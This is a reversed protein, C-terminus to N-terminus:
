KREINEESFDAPNTIVPIFGASLLLKPTKILRNNICVATFIEDTHCDYLCESQRFSSVVGIWEKANVGSISSYEGKKICPSRHIICM